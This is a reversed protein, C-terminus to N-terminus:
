KNKKEKKKLRIYKTIYVYCFCIMVVATDQLMLTCHLHLLYPLEDPYKNECCRIEKISIKVSVHEVTIVLYDM